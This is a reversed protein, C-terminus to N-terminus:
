SFLKALWGKKSPSPEEKKHELLLMAQKLSDIHAEKEKLIEKLLENEQRLLNTMENDNPNERQSMQSDIVNENSLKLEGYVRILESTDISKVGNDNHTFSLKGTDIHRYITKVSKGVLKAAESVSLLAM